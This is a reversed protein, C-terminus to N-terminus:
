GNIKTKVKNWYDTTTSKYLGNPGGNWCRAIKEYTNLNYYKRYIEFMQISKERSWRDNYTFRLPLNKIELIRNIDDVMCRRIQLCGVADENPNYAFNNYSSEVFMIASIIENSTNQYFIKQEWNLTDIEQKLSDIILINSDIEYQLQKIKDSARNVTFFLTMILMIIITFNFYIKDDNSKVM